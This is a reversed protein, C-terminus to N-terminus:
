GWLCRLLLSPRGSGMAEMPPLRSLWVFPLAFVPPNFFYKIRGPTVKLLEEEQTQEVYLNYGKGEAIMKGATYFCKFDAIPSFSKATIVTWGLGALFVFICIFIASNFFGQNGLCSRDTM